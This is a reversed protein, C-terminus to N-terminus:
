RADARAASAVPPAKEDASRPLRVFYVLFLLGFVLDGIGAQAAKPPLLGSAAFAMVLGAFSLKGATAVAIFLRDATGTVGAWLYAIGFILVFAALTALYLAPADGPLGGMERLPRAAPVFTIAGLVNMLATVIM